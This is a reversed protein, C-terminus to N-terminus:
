FILDDINLADMLEQFQKKNNPNFDYGCGEPRVYLINNRMMIFLDGYWDGVFFTMDQAPQLEDWAKQITQILDEKTM